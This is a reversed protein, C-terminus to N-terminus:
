GVIIKEEPYRINAKEKRQRSALALAVTLPGLRGIFMSVAIVIRGIYSLQSTIGMSLGVTGSASVTEFLIQIFDFNETVSLVLTVFLVWLMAFGVIVIARDIVTNDIRKKMYETDKKGKIVSWNKLYLVGITTIKVGGATSGSSGGIFMFIMTIVLTGTTLKDMPLTNFGATRPTISHFLSSLITEKFTFNDAQMNKYEFILILIFGIIILGLTMRLVLSAHISLKKLSRKKILEYIVSFGLGGLIILMIATLQIVVNSTFATLSSYNGMIDFGANCFASISHFVSYAIGKKVGLLPIFQTSFLVAGILEIIFTTVIVYKVFKVIGQINLKNLSEQILLRERLSIKRGVLLAIFSTITM